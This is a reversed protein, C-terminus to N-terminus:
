QPTTTRCVKRLKNNETVRIKCGKTRHRSNARTRGTPSSSVMQSNLTRSNVPNSPARSSHMRNTTRNSSRRRVKLHWGPEGKGM